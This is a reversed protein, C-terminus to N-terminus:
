GPFISSGGNKQMAHKKEQTAAHKIANAKAIAADAEAIAAEADELAKEADAKASKAHMQAKEAYDNDDAGAEQNGTAFILALAVACIYLVIRDKKLM